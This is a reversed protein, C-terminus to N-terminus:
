LVESNPTAKQHSGTPSGKVQIESSINTPLQQSLGAEEMLDSINNDLVDMKKSMEDLRGMISEGTNVFKTEIDELMEKVFINLDQSESRKNAGSPLDM